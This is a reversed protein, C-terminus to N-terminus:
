ETCVENLIIKIDNVNDGAIILLGKNGFNANYNDLETTVSKTVKLIEGIMIKTHFIVGQYEIPIKEFTSEIADRFM